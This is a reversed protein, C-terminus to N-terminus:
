VFMSQMLRRAAIYELKAKLSATNNKHKIETKITKSSDMACMDSNHKIISDLYWELLRNNRQADIWLIDTAQYLQTAFENLEIASWQAIDECNTSLSPGLKNELLDVLGNMSLQCQNILKECFYRVLESDNTYKISYFFATANNQKQTIENEIEKKNLNNFLYNEIIYILEDNKNKVYSPDPFLQNTKPNDDPLNVDNYLRICQMLNSEDNDNM